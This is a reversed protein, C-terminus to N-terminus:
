LHTQKKKLKNLLIDRKERLEANDDYTLKIEDHFKIFESQLNLMDLVKEKWKLIPYEM